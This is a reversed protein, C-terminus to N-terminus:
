LTSATFGAKKLTDFVLTADPTGHVTASGVQVRDVHTNPVKGLAQTVRRVCADCHMGDIKLNLVIEGDHDAM